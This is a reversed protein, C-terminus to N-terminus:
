SCCSQATCSPLDHRTSRSLSLICAGFAAVAEGALVMMESVLQRSPSAWQDMAAISVVADGDADVSVSISAEPTRIEVSGNSARWESRLEAAQIAVGIHTLLEHATRADVVRTFLM